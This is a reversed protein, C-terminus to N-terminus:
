PKPLSPITFNMEPRESVDCPPLYDYDPIPHTIQMQYAPCEDEISLFFRDYPEGAYRMQFTKCVRKGFGDCYEFRGGTSFPRDLNILQVMREKPVEWLVGQYSSGGAIDITGSWQVNNGKRNKARYMPQFLHNTPLEAYGKAIEDEKFVNPDTPVIEIIGSDAGWNFKAPLRGNNQFYVMLAANGKEDKPWIIDAVTGDPRGITVYARADLRSAAISADLAAKAQRNSADLANKANDAIRQEQTMMGEAAQRIKDAATSMDAMKKAQTDAAQALTHTDVGGEHMERLQNKLIWITLGSTTALVFTFLAMWVTAAATRRAAKDTPTEAQKNARREQRKRKVYGIFRVWRSKRPAQVQAAPTDSKQENDL